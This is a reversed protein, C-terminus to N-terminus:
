HKCFPLSPSIQCLQQCLSDDGLPCSGGPQGPQGPQGPNTPASADGNFWCRSRYGVKDVGQVCSGAKYDSDSNPVNVGVACLSGSFYTDMRCQTAPHDDNTQSVQSADPTSFKPHTTEKKLDQFLYAVSEASLSIRACIDQDGKSSYQAQCQSSVLPDIAAQSIIAANDDQSFFTRLCKLTAFYDAGGENTAWSGGFIGSGKPAGGLHHGMEHCAILAEGEVTTDPHRAIGGYMNIIWNSGKQEASSNVTSDSWLRNIVLTGGKQQVVSAYMAQIRDMIATYQQETLGGNNRIGFHTRDGVPIKMSNPPVFGECLTKTSSVAGVAAVAVLVAPALFKLFRFQRM